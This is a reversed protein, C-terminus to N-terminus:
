GDAPSFAPSRVTDTSQMRRLYMWTGAALAVALLSWWHGPHLGLWMVPEVRVFELGFRLAGYGGLALLAVRGSGVHLRRLGLYLGLGVFSHYLAVPHTATGGPGDVAWPLSTASGVECGNWLCGVRYLAYGLAVAPAAADAYARVPVRLVRLTAVGGLGTGLLAGYMAKPGGVVQGLLWPNEAVRHPSSALCYWAGGVWAGVLGVVGAAFMVVPDLEAWEARQVALGLVILAALTWVSQPAWLTAMADAPLNM